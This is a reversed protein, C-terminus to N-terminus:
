KPAWDYLMEGALEGYLEGMAGGAYGGVLGGVIGCGLSSLGGTPVAFVVTCISTMLYGAAAGGISGSAIGSVLKTGEVYHARRCLDDRGASCAEKVELASSLVNMGIGVASGKKLVKVAKAIGGIKKAYGQIEGTHLYSKTSIGLMKKISGKKRLKTGWRAIGQLQIDLKAFLVKRQNIFEQRAIPTGRTLSLKYLREIDDLTEKISELHASWSSTAAGLGLSGYGLMHQLLDYNKIVLGDAGAQHQSLQRRVNRAYDMLETEEVTVTRTSLDGMVVIQGPMVVVNLLHANLTDFKANGGVRNKLTAYSQMQENIFVYPKTM